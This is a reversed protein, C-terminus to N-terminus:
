NGGNYKCVIIGKNNKYIHLQAVQCLKTWQEWLTAKHLIVYKCITNELISKTENDLEDFSLINYNQITIDYLYNYIWSLPRQEGNNTYYYVEEVTLNQLEELDDKLSVSFTRNEEDYHWEDTEYSGIQMSVGDVLTNSLWIECKASKELLGQESYALVEGDIDNFEINGVNSIIGFSPLKLDARDFISCELSLLNQNNIIIITGNNLTIRATLIIM